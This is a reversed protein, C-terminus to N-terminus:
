GSVQEITPPVVGFHAFGSALLALEAENTCEVLLPEGTHAAEAAMRFFTVNASPLERHEARVVLARLVRAQSRRFRLGAKVTM